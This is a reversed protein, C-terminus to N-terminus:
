PSPQQEASLLANNWDSNSNLSQREGEGQPDDADGYDACQRYLYYHQLVFVVDFVISFAGLGFKTFNTFVESWDDAAWCVVCWMLEIVKPL